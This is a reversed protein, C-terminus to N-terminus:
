TGEHLIQASAVTTNGRANEAAASMVGWFVPSGSWGFTLRFDIVMLEGVTYCLNHAEDPDIRVNRFAESVDAKSRLICKASNRVVRALCKPLAETSGCLPVSDTDTDATLGGERKNSQAKFSLDNIIRVKYTVVSGM